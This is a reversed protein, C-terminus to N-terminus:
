LCLKSTERLYRLIWKVANWHEKGLNLLFRSVVGVVYAIDPRTFVMAYMLRSVAPSYPVKSMEDKEEENSPCQTKSLKLHGLLPVHMPKANHMNFMELVKKIYDEQSIWLM